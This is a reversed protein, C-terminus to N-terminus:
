FLPDADEDFEIPVEIGWAATVKLYAEALDGWEPDGVPVQVRNGYGDPIEKIGGTAEITGLFDRVGDVFRDLKDASDLEWSCVAATGVAVVNELMPNRLMLERLVDLDEKSMKLEDLM